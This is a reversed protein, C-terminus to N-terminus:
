GPTPELDAWDFAEGCLPMFRLRTAGVTVHDFPHLDVTEDFEENNLKAANRVAINSAIKFRRAGATYRVVFSYDRSISADGFDLRVECDEGRGVLNRGEFLEVSRGKGPGEVVVLWGVVPPRDAAADAAGVGARPARKRGAYATPDDSGSGSRDSMRVTAAEPDGYADRPRRYKGSTSPMQTTPKDDDPNAM